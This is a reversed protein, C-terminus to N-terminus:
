IENTYKLASKIAKYIGGGNIINNTGAYDGIAKCTIGEKGSLDVNGCFETKLPRLIYYDMFNNEIYNHWCSYFDKKLDSYPERSWLGINWINRGIPFIWFYCESNEKFYYYSFMDSPLKSKGYIQISMGLSQGSYYKGLLGRAGAAVVIEKSRTNGLNYNDESNVIRRVTTGWRVEADQKLAEKLLFDDIIARRCGIAFKDSDYICSEVNNRRYSIDGKILTVDQQLLMDVDMGIFKLKELAKYPIGGGCIKEYRSSTKELILCSYGKKQLQYACVNGAIGSGVIIYDYNMIM